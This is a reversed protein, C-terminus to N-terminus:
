ALKLSKLWKSEQEKMEQMRSELESATSAVTNFHGMKRGSRLEGKGYWYLEIGTSSEPPVAQIKPAGQPGLLNWMGFVAGRTRVSGMEIGLVARWHNEFQSALCATMSFHGSNHVRPAIENVWLEGDSTEFFEIAFAGILGFARALKEARLCAKAELEKPAGLATAPGKVWRCIGNEQHSIVLPLAQFEGKAGAFSVLALERVFKIKKEAYIQAGLSLGEEIFAAATVNKGPSIWTGKGDYGGRSWKLVYDDGFDKPIERSSLVKFPATAMKEAVLIYKQTLKDQFKEMVELKPSFRVPLGQSAERLLSIDLFENEFVVQDCQSLFERLKQPDDPRGLVLAEAACVQAAPDEASQTYVRLNLGMKLAAEALMRSLQGGGLIGVQM